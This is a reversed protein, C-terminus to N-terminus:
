CSSQARQERLRPSRTKIGASLNTKTTQVRAPRRRASAARCTAGGPTTVASPVGATEEARPPLSAPSALGGDPQNAGRVCTNDTSFVPLGRPARSRSELIMAGGNSRFLPATVVLTYPNGLETAASRRTEHRSRQPSRFTQRQTKTNKYCGILLAYTRRTSLGGSVGIREGGVWM